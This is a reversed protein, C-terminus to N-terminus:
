ADTLQQVLAKASSRNLDENLHDPSADRYHNLGAWYKAALVKKVRAEFEQKSIEGKRVAKKITKIARESNESLEIIDNGALFARLDAEGDPFYKVVAKMEMADSVILGKFNLSDRLVGTVIPKSLTSPLNKTSDLAPIDMHAIM